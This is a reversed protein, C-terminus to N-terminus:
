TLSLRQPGLRELAAEIRRHEVSADLRPMLRGREREAQEQQRATSRSTQPAADKLATMWAPPRGRRRERFSYALRELSTIALDLQEREQRLEEIMKLINM